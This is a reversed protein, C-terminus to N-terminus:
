DGITRTITRPAPDSAIPRRFHYRRTRDQASVPGSVSFLEWGQRGWHNLADDSLPEPSTITHYQWAPHPQAHPNLSM